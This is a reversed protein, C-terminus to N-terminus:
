SENMDFRSTIDNIRQLLETNAPTPINLEAGKRVIYGNLNDIETRRREQVDRYMSSKNDLNEQIVQEVFGSLAEPSLQSALSSPNLAQAVQSVEHVTKLRLADFDPNDSLEGNSVEWLATLPNCVANAALKQWMCVEMTKDDIAKANLGSQDWLQAISPMGGGVFTRGKGIHTIHFMDDDDDDDDDDDVVEQYVGHTTMCMIIEPSRLHHKSFIDLLNERVDLAGNSLVLIRLNTTHLRPLISEVADRAQFAKTALVLNRIQHPSPDGVYQCPVHALRPRRNQMMCVTINNEKRNNDDTKKHHARFLTVLPYSPFASRISAAFFLGISGSGLIHLPEM